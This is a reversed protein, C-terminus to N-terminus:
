DPVYVGPVPFHLVVGLHGFLDEFLVEEVQLELGGIADFDGV